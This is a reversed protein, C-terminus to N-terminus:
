WGIQALSPRISVGPFVGAAGAGRGVGASAAKGLLPRRAVGEAPRVEDRHERADIEEERRAGEQAVAVEGPPDLRGADPHQRVGNGDGRAAASAGRRPRRFRKAKKPVTARCM